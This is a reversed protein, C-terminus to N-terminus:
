APTALKTSFKSSATVFCHCRFRVDGFGLGPSVEEAPAGATNPGDSQGVQQAAVQVRGICGLRSRAAQSAQRVERGLGLAHDPKELRAAGGLDLREVGLRTQGLQASLVQRLRDALALPQGRHCGALAAKRQDFGREAELLMAFRTGPDAVQQRVRCLNGVVNADHARHVGIGDVVIGGHRKQLGPRLDRATGAHARPQAVTEAALGAVQGAEDHHDRLAGPALRQVVPEPARAEQRRAVLPDLEARDAVRDQIQGIRGANRAVLPAGEEVRQGLEVALLELLVAIGFDDRADRLVLHRELHLARHRFEGVQGALRLRHEVEVALVGAARARIGVVAQQRASQGLAAHAEDLEVMPAPVLVPRELAANLALGLGGVLGRCGQHLIEFLAAQEVVREHDPAAFEPAGHVALAREGLGFVAAVVM